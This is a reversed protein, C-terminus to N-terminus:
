AKIGTEMQEISDAAMQYIEDMSHAVSQPAYREFECNDLLSIFNEIVSPEINKDALKEQVNDRSLESAPIGLKDSLYGWLASLIEVYFEDKKNQKLYAAAQKLRKRSTKGAKRNKVAAIDANNKIQQIRLIILLAFAVPLIIFITWFAASNFFSGKNKSLDIEGTKIYRIDSALDEVESSIIPAVSLVSDRQGSVTIDFPKSRATKYTKSSPDFYAFEVEPITFTGSQRAIVVYSFTKSGTVGNNGASINDSSKPAYSEFASPINFEPNQFLQFNGSGSVTVKITLPEDLNVTNKDATVAVNFSGVAGGFNAPKGAPLPKVKLKKVKSKAVKISRSFGWSDGVVCQIEYPDISIEGTKQAFLAKKQWLSYRYVKNGITKHEFTINSPNKVDLAWFGTFPPFKVDQFGVIDYRTFLTATLLVQEGVYVEKKNFNVDVFLDGAASEPTVVEDQQSSGGQGANQQNQNQNQNQNNYNPRRGGGFFQNFIDDFDDSGGAQSHQKGDDPLVKITLTNSTAKKGKADATAAPINIIGQKTASVTLILSYNSTINGNIISVNSSNSRGLIQIGDMQPINITAGSINVSYEIRFAQGEYVQSPAEAKLTLDQAYNKNIILLLFLLTFNIKNM